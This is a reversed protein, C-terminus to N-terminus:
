VKDTGFVHSAQIISSVSVRTNSKINERVIYYILLKAYSYIVLIGAAMYVGGLKLIFYFPLVLFLTVIIFSYLSSWLFTNAGLYETEKVRNPVFGEVRLRKSAYGLIGMSLLSLSVLIPLINYSLFLADRFLVCFILGLGIFILQTVVTLGIKITAWMYSYRNCLWSRM